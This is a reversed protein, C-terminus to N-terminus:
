IDNLELVELETVKNLRKDDNQHHANIARELARIQAETMGPMRYLALRYGRASKGFHSLCWMHQVIRRRLDVAMGTYFRGDPAHFRYLGPIRAKGLSQLASAVPAAKAAALANEATQANGTLEFEWESGLEGQGDEGAAHRLAAETDPGIYGSVPLRNRRQFARIWNRVSRTMVGDVALSIGLARNLTDQVWRVYESPASPAPDESDSEPAYTPADM